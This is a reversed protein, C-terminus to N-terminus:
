RLFFALFLSIILNEEILGKKVNQELEKIYLLGEILRDPSFYGKRTICEQLFFYSIGTSEVTKSQACEYMIQYRVANYLWALITVNSEGKAILENYLEYCNYDKTLVSQVFNQIQIESDEHIVKEDLLQMYAEECSIGKIQALAKIKDLEKLCRGFNNSCGKVLRKCSEKSLDTKGKLMNLVVTETQVPFKVIHDEFETTFFKYFKTRTDLKLQVLILYNNGLYKHYETYGKEYSLIDKEYKSVYLKPRGLLNRNSKPSLVSVASTINEIELNLKEAISKIYFNILYYDEGEFILLKPINGKIIASAIDVIEM